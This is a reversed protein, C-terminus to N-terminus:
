LAPGGRGLAEDLTARTPIMQDLGTNALAARVRGASCVIALERDELRCQKAAEWLVGLGTTDVYSAAGLDVVVQAPGEDLVAFLRERFSLSSAMDIKGTVQVIVTGDEPRLVGIRHDDQTGM